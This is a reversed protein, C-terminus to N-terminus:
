LTEKGQKTVCKSKIVTDHLWTGDVILLRYADTAKHRHLSVANKRYDNTVITASLCIFFTLVVFATAFMDVAKTYDM